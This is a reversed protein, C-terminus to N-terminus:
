REKEVIAYKFSYGCYKEGTNIAKEIKKKIRDKKVVEYQQAMISYFYKTVSEIDDFLMKKKKNCVSIKKKIEFEEIKIHIYDEDARRLNEQRTVWELNYISNDRKNHNLHDVTLNEADPIPKWTLMVLRHASKYGCATKVLCYGGESIKVPLPKKDERKFNGMTSVYVQYDVNYKWREIRFLFKPMIFNFM